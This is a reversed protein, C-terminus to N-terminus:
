GIKNLSDQNFSFQGVMFKPDIAIYSTFLAPDNLFTYMVFLGGLSGGYLTHGDTAGKYKRNIYPM